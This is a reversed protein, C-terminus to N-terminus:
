QLHRFPAIALNIDQLAGKFTDISNQTFVNAPLIQDVSSNTLLQIQLLQPLHINIQKYKYPHNSRTQSDGPMFYHNPNIDLINNTIKYM